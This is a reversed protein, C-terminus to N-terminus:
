PTASLKAAESDIFKRMLEPFGMKSVEEYAAARREAEALKRRLDEIEKTGNFAARQHNQLLEAYEDAIQRCDTCMLKRCRTCLFSGPGSM